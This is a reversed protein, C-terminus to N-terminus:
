GDDREENRRDEEEMADAEERNYDEMEAENLLIERIESPTKNKFEGAKDREEFGPVTTPDFQDAQDLIFDVASKNESM